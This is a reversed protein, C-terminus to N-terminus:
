ANCRRGESWRNIKEAMTKIQIDSKLRNCNKIASCEPLGEDDFTTEIRQRIKLTDILKGAAIAEQLNCKRAVTNNDRKEVKGEGEQCRACIEESFETPVVVRTETRHSSDLTKM